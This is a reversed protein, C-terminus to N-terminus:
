RSAWGRERCSARGIEEADARRRASVDRLTLLRGARRGDEGYYPVGYRELVRGDVLEIEDFTVEDGADVARQLAATFTEPDRVRARAAAAVAAGRLHPPAAVLALAEEPPIGYLELARPDARVLVGQADVEFSGDRPAPAVDDTRRTDNPGERASDMM